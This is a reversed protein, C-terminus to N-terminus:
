TGDARRNTNIIFKLSWDFASDPSLLPIWCCGTYFYVIQKNAPLLVTTSSEGSSYDFQESYDTCRVMTDIQPITSSYYTGNPNDTLVGEGIINGSSPNTDNCFWQSRRWSHRQTIQVSIESSNRTINDSNARIIYSM